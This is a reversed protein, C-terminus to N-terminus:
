IDAKIGKAREATEVSAMGRQPNEGRPRLSLAGEYDRGQIGLWEETEKRM